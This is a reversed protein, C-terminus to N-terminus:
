VALGLTVAIISRCGTERLINIVEKITSGTTVIDDLVIVDKDKFIEVCESSYFRSDPNLKFADKVNNQRDKYKLKTQSVTNKTRLILDEAIEIGTVESIGKCIYYSQNYGRERLKTKHLPVPIIYAPELKEKKFYEILDFGVYQGFFTGIDYMGKYKFYHIITQFNDDTEFRYFSHFKDASINLSTEKIDDATAKKLSTLVSNKFFKSSDESTIREDTVICIRPFIFDIFPSVFNKFKKSRIAEM